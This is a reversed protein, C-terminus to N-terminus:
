VQIFFSTIKLRPLILIERTHAANNSDHSVPQETYKYRTHIIHKYPQAHTKVM